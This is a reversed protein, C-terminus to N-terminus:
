ETLSEIKGQVICLESEIFGKEGIPYDTNSIIQLADRVKLLMKLEVSPIHWPKTM